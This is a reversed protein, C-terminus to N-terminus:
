DKVNLFNLFYKEIGLKSLTKIISSHQIINFIKEVDMSIIMSKKRSGRLKFWGQM